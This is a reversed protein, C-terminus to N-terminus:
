AWVAKGPTKRRHLESEREGRERGGGHAQGNGLCGRRGGRGGRRRGGGDLDRRRGLGGGRRPHQHVVDGALHQRALVVGLADLRGADGLDHGRVYQRGLLLVALDLGVVLHHHALAGPALAAGAGVAAVAAEGDVLGRRQDVHFLAHGHLRAVVGGDRQRFMGRAALFGERRQHVVVGRLDAHLTRVEDIRVAKGRRLMVGRCVVQRQQAPGEDAVVGLLVRVVLDLFERDTGDGLRVAVQQLTSPM